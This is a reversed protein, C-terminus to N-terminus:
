AKLLHCIYDMEEDIERSTSVTRAVEARLTERFRRRLRHLTTRLNAVSTELRAAITEASPPAESGGVLLPKIAQFWQAKGEAVLATELNRWAQGVLASAWMRDYSGALGNEGASIRAVGAEVAPDDISVIERGGGRKLAQGRAADNAVFYELSNLLFTRLRGKERRIRSLTNEALLHAFFGQVLDQADPPAYGRRRLFTYLPPWYDRCFSALAAQGAELSQGQAAHLVVTWHTTQFSSGGERLTGRTAKM